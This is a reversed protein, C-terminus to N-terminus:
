NKEEAVNDNGDNGHLFDGTGKSLLALEALLAMRNREDYNNTLIADSVAILNISENTSGTIVLDQNNALNDYIDMKRTETEYKKKRELMPAAVGKAADMVKQAKANYRTAQLESDALLNSVNLETNAMLEASKKKSEAEIKVVDENTADRVRQVELANEAKINDLKASTAQRINAEIKRAKSMMDNLLVQQANLQEAGSSMEQERQEHFTQLMTEVEQQQRTTQMENQHTMRQQANASIVMTKESMQHTIDSPLYVSKIMVSEIEVGQPKFQANLADRMILTVDKGLMTARRADVRANFNSSGELTEDRGSLMEETTSSGSDSENDEQEMEKLDRSKSGRTLSMKPHMTRKKGSRIGYIETHKMSRALGRVEEEQADRLQQELGRPKVQYVFRRVLEPDEGREVDGMIRFSLAVDINVTVNDRTKCAKVPLDLVITQMTVLQSVKVWPPHPYHLGPYWIASRKGNKEYEIDAGHKTVLATWACSYLAVFHQM